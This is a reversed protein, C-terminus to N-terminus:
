NYESVLLFIFSQKRCKFVIINHCVKTRTANSGDMSFLQTMPIYIYHSLIFPIFQLLLNTHFFRCLFIFCSLISLDHVFFIHCCFTVFTSSTPLCHRPQSSAAAYWSVQSPIIHCTQTVIIIVPRGNLIVFFHYSFYLLLWSVHDETWLSCPFLPFLIYIKYCVLIDGTTRLLKVLNPEQSICNM